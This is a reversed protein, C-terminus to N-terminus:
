GELSYMKTTKLINVLNHKYGDGSDLELVNENYRLFFGPGMINGMDKKLWGRAVVSRNEMEIYKGIKSM